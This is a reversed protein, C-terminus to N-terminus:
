DNCFFLRCIAWLLPSFSHVVVMKASSSSCPFYLGEWNHTIYINRMEKKDDSMWYVNITLSNCKCQVMVANYIIKNYWVLSCIVGKSLMQSLLLLM